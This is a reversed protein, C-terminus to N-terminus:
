QLRIELRLPHLQRHISFGGKEYDFFTSGFLNRRHHEDSTRCHNTECLASSEYKTPRRAVPPSPSPWAARLAGVLRGRIRPPTSSSACPRLPPAKARRRKPAVKAAPCLHCVM